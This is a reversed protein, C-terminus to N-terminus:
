HNVRASEIMNSIGKDLLKNCISIVYSIGSKKEADLTDDYLLAKFAKKVADISKSLESIDTRGIKSLYEAIDKNMNTLNLDSLVLSLSGKTDVLNQLRKTTEENSDLDYYDSVYNNIFWCLGSLEEFFDRVYSYRAKVESSLNLKDIDIDFTILLFDQLSNFFSKDFKKSSDLFYEFFGSNEEKYLGKIELIDTTEIKLEPKLKNVIASQNDTLNPEKVEVNDSNSVPEKNTKITGPGALVSWLATQPLFYKLRCCFFSALFINIKFMILISKKFYESM